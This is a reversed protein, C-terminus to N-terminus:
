PLLNRRYYSVIVQQADDKSALFSPEVFPRPAHGPHNVEKGYVIQGDTQIKAKRLKILHPSTGFELFHATFFDKEPGIVVEDSKSKEVAIKYRKSPNNEEMTEYIPKAGADLAGSKLSNARNGMRQINRMVEDFGSIRISM